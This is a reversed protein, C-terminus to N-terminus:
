GRRSIAQWPDPVWSTWFLEAGPAMGTARPELLGAGAICGSVAAGHYHEGWRVEVPTVRGELESHIDNPFWDIVGVKVGSGDVGLFDGANRVQEVRSREAANVNSPGTPPLAPEVWATQTQNLIDELGHADVVVEVTHRSAFHTADSTIGSMGLIRRAGSWSVWPHFQVVIDFSSSSGLRSRLDPDSQFVPALKMASTLDFTSRIPLSKLAEGCSTECRAVYTAKGLFRVLQVGSELFLARDSADPLRDLQVVFPEGRKAALAHLGPQPQVEVSSVRVRYKDDQADISFSGALRADGLLAYWVAVVIMAPFVRRRKRGTHSM